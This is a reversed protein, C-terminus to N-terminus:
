HMYLLATPQCAAKTALRVLKGHAAPTDCAKRRMCAHTRMQGLKLIRNAHKSCLDANCTMASECDHDQRRVSRRVRLGHLVLRAGVNHRIAGQCGQRTRGAGTPITASPQAM